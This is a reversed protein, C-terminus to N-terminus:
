RVDQTERRIFVGVNGMETLYLTSFEMTPAPSSLKVGETRSAYAEASKRDINFLWQYEADGALTAYDTYDVAYGTVVRGSKLTIDM